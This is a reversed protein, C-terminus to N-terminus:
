QMKLNYLLTLFIPFSFFNFFVCFVFMAMTLSFRIPSNSVVFSAGRSASICRGLLYLGGDNAVKNLPAAYSVNSIITAVDDVQKGSFTSSALTRALVVAGDEVMAACPAVVSSSLQKLTRISIRVLKRYSEKQYEVGKPLEVIQQEKKGYARAESTLNHVLLIEGYNVNCIIAISEIAGQEVMARRNMKERSLREMTRSCIERIKGDSTHQLVTHILDMIGDRIARKYVDANCAVSYAAMTCHHLISWHRKTGLLSKDSGSLNVLSALGGSLMFKEQGPPYCALVSLAAACGRMTEPNPIFALDALANVVGSQVCLLLTSAAMRNQPAADVSDTACGCVLNHLVIACTSRVSEKPRLVPNKTLALSTLAKLTNKNSMESRGLPHSAINCLGIMGLSRMEKTLGLMTTLAWVVGDQIIQEFKGDTSLLNYLAKCCSNCTAPDDESARILGTLVLSKVAGQEVMAGKVEMCATLECLAAVSNQRIKPDHSGSMDMLIPLAGQEVLAERIHTDGDAMLSITVVCREKTNRDNTHAQAILASFLGAKVLREVISKDGSLRCLLASCLANTERTQEAASSARSILSEITGSVNSLRRCNQLGTDTSVNYLVALCMYVMHPDDAATANSTSSKSEVVDSGGSSSSIEGGSVAMPDGLLSVIGRLVRGSEIILRVGENCLSLQFVTDMACRSLMNKGPHTDKERKGGSKGDKCFTLLLDLVRYRTARTGNKEQTLLMKRGQESCSINFLTSALTLSTTILENERDSTAYKDSRNMPIRKIQRIRAEHLDMLARVGERVIDLPTVKPTDRSSSSNGNEKENKDEKEEKNANKANKEHDEHYERLVGVSRLMQDFDCSMITCLALFCERRIADDNESAMDVLADLGGITTVQLASKSTSALSRIATACASRVLSGNTPRKALSILTRAMNENIMRKRCREELAINSLAGMCMFMVDKAERAGDRSKQRAESRRRDAQKQGSRRSEGRNLKQRQMRREEADRVNKCAQAEALILDILPFAGQEVMLWCTRTSLSLVYLVSSIMSCLHLRVDRNLVDVSSLMTRLAELAGEHLLTIPMSDVHSLVFMCGITYLRLLSDLRVRERRRRKAAVIDASPSLSSSSASSELIRATIKLTGEVEEGGGLVLVLVGDKTNAVESLMCTCEGGFDQQSLDIRDTGGARAADVDYVDFSIYQVENPHVVVKFTKVFTPNRDNQIVETRGGELWPGVDTANEEDKGVVGGHRQKMVVMPDSGSLEDLDALNTCSISMEMMFPESTARLTTMDDEWGVSLTRHRSRRSSSLREEKARAKSTKVVTKTVRVALQAIQELGSYAVDVHCLNFLLRATSLLVRKDNLPPICHRLLESYANSQIFHTESAELCALNAIAIACLQTAVDVGDQVSPSTSRSGHQQSHRHKAQSLGMIALIAGDQIMQSWNSPNCTLRCLARSCAMRIQEDPTSALSVFADIMGDELVQDQLDSNGVLSCLALACDRKSQLEVDYDTDEDEAANTTINSETADHLLHTTTITNTDISSPRTKERDSSAARAGATPVEMSAPLENPSSLASSLKSKSKKKSNRVDEDRGDMSSSGDTLLDLKSGSSGKPKPSEVIKMRSLYMMGGLYDGQTGFVDGTYPKFPSAPPSVVEPEDAIVTDIRKPRIKM